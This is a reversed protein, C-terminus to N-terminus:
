VRAYVYVVIVSDAAFYRLLLPGTSEGGDLEIVNNYNHWIKAGGGTTEQYGWQFAITEDSTNTFTYYVDKYETGDIERYNDYAVSGHIDLSTAHEAPPNVIPAPNQTGGGGGCSVLTLILAILLIARM